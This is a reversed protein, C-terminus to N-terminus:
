AAQRVLELRLPGFDFEKTRPPGAERVRSLPGSAGPIQRLNECHETNSFHLAQPVPHGDSRRRDAACWRDRYPIFRGAYIMATGRERDRGPRSSPFCDPSVRMRTQILTSTSPKVREVWSLPVAPLPADRGNRRMGAITEKRFRCRASLRPRPFADEHGVASRRHLAISRGGQTAARCERTARSTNHGLKFATM